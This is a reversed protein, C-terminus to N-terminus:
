GRFQEGEGESGRVRVRVRGGEGQVRGGEGEGELKTSSVLGGARLFLVSMGSYTWCHDKPWNLTAGRHLMGCFLLSM